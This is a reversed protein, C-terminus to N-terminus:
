RVGWAEGDVATEASRDRRAGGVFRGKDEAEWGGM